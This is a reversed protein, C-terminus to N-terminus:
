YSASLGPLISSYWPVKKQRDSYTQYSLMGLKAQKSLAHVALHWACQHGVVFSKTFLTFFLFGGTNRNGKPIEPEPNLYAFTSCLRIGAGSATFTLRQEPLFIQDPQAPLTGTVTCPTCRYVLRSACGTLKYFTADGPVLLFYIRYRNYFWLVRGPGLMSLYHPM